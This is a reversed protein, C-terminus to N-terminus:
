QGELVEPSITGGMMVGEFCDQATLFNPIHHCSQM